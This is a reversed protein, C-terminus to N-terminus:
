QRWFAPNFLVLLPFLELRGFMMGAALLLKAGDPLEALAAGPGVVPGLGPGSNAIAGAAGTLASVLDLGLFGLGAALAAFGLAYVVLFGMVSERAEAAVPARDFGAVVVAHPHRLQRMQAMADALLLRLRFVKIGGTTSGACGGLLALFLVLVAPMGGFGGYDVTVFGTGTMASVATFTGKRAAELGSMGHNALWLAMAASAAAMVGLYWILQRDRAVARVNRQALSFFLLFPLGAIAMGMTVVIEVAASNWHAISGDWTSFGGTSLTAMAHLWADFPAMGALWLLLALMATLWTYAALLTAGMRVARATTKGGPGALEVRFVQMGGIRLAPFVAVAMALTGVGGLWQLLGRWLLLGQPQRDLGTLLTAGTTTLGCAAEFLADIAEMQPQAFAFPLAAFATCALWGLVVTLYIQRVSFAPRRVRMGMQLALGALLTFGACAAFAQWEAQGLAADLLLPPLMLAALLVLLWGVVHLVPRIDVM